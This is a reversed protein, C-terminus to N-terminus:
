GPRRSRMAVPVPRWAGAVLLLRGGPLRATRALLFGAVESELADRGGAQLVADLEAFLEGPIRITTAILETMRGVSLAHALARRERRRGGAGSGVRVRLQVTAM